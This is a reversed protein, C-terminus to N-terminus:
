IRPCYKRVHENFHALGRVKEPDSCAGVHVDMAAGAETSTPDSCLLVRLGNDMVYTVYDRDDLPPKMININSWDQVAKSVNVTSASSAEGEAFAPRSFMTPSASAALLSFLLQRRRLNDADSSTRDESATMKLRTNPVSGMNTPSVNRPLKM